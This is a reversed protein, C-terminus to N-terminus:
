SDPHFAIFGFRRQITNMAFTLNLSDSSGRMRSNGCIADVQVRGEGAGISVTSTAMINGESPSEFSLAGVGGGEGGGASEWFPLCGSLSGRERDGEGGSGEKGVEREEEGSIGGGLSESGPAVEVSNLFFNSLCYM